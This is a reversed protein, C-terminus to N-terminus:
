SRIFLILNWLYLVQAPLLVLLSIAWPINYLFISTTMGFLGFTVLLGLFAGILLLGQIGNSLFSTIGAVIPNKTSVDKFGSFTDEIDGDEIKSDDTGFQISVSSNFFRLDTAELTYFEFVLSDNSLSFNSAFLMLNIVLMTIIIKTSAM